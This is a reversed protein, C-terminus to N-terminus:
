IHYYISVVPRRAPAALASGIAAVASPGALNGVIPIVLDRAALAKV